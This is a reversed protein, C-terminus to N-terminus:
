QCEEKQNIQHASNDVHKVISCMRSKRRPFSGRETMRNTALLNM